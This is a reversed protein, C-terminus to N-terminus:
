GDVEGGDPSTTTSAEEAASAAALMLMADRAGHADRFIASTALLGIRPSTGAETLVKPVTCYLAAMTAIPLVLAAQVATLEPDSARLATVHKVLVAELDASLEAVMADARAKEEAAIESIADTM